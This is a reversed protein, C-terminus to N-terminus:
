FHFSGNLILSKHLNELKYGELPFQNKHVNSILVIDLPLLRKVGWEREFPKEYLNKYNKLNKLSSCINEKRDLLRSNEIRELIKGNRKKGITIHLRM